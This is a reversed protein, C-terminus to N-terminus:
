PSSLREVTFSASEPAVSQGGLSLSAMWSPPEDSTGLGDAVLDFDADPLALQATLTLDASSPGPIAEWSSALRAQLWAVGQDWGQQLCGPPLGLADCTVAQAAPWGSSGTAGDQYSGGLAEVLSTPHGPLHVPALLAVRVYSWVCWAPHLALAHPPLLVRPPAGEEYQVALSDAELPTNGQDSLPFALDLPLGPFRVSELRHWAFAGSSGPDDALSLTSHVELTGFALPDLLAIDSLAQRASLGTADVSALLQEELSVGGGSATAGRCGEADLDGRATEFLLASADSSTPVCDDSGDPFAADVVCDLLAQEFGRACRGLRGVPEVAAMWASAESEPLVLTSVLSYRGAPSVRLDSVSVDLVAVTGPVLQGAALTVCGWVLWRGAADRGRVVVTAALGAPLNEFLLDQALGSVTRVRDPHLDGTPGLTPCSGDFFLLAEVAEFRSLPHAGRYNPRVWLSAFGVQSVAVEFVVAVADPATVRVGFNAAEGGAALRMVAVGDGDTVASVSELISGRGEGEVTFGVEAGSVPVGRPDLYRIRLQVTDNPALGISRGPPNLIELLHDGTSGGDSLPSSGDDGCAVGGMCCAAAVLLGGIMPVQFRVTM